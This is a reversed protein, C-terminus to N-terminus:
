DYVFCAENHRYRRSRLYGRVADGVSVVVSNFTVTRAGCRREMTRGVYRDWIDCEDVGEDTLIMLGPNGFFFQRRLGINRPSANMSGLSRTPSGISREPTLKKVALRTPDGNDTRLRHIWGHRNKRWREREVGALGWCFRLYPSPPLLKLSAVSSPPISAAKVRRTRGPTPNPTSTTWASFSTQGHPEWPGYVHVEVYRGM